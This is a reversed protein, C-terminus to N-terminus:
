FSKFAATAAVSAKHKTDSSPVVVALCGVGPIIKLDLGMGSSSQKELAQKSMPQQTLKFGATAAESASLSVARLSSAIKIVDEAPKKLLGKCAILYVAASVAPQESFLVSPSCPGIAEVQSFATAVGKEAMTAAVHALGNATSPHHPGKASAAFDPLASASIDATPTVLNLALVGALDGATGRGHGVSYVSGDACALAVSALKNVSKASEFAADVKAKHKGAQKTDQTTSSVAPAAAVAPKPSSTPQSPKLTTAPKTSPASQQVPKHSQQSPKAHQVPKTVTKAPEPEPTAAVSPKSEEKEEAKVAETETETAAEVSAPRTKKAPPRRNRAPGPKKVAALRPKQSVQDDCFGAAKIEELHNSPFKGTEEGHKVTWWDESKDEVVVETGEELSIEGEDEATYTTTVRYKPPESAAKPAGEETEAGGAAAPAGPAAGGPPRMGPPAGGGFMGM